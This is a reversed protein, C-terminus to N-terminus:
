VEPLEMPNPQNEPDAMWLKHDNATSIVQVANAYKKWLKRKQPVVGVARTMLLNDCMDAHKVISAIENAAVRALYEEESEKEIVPDHAVGKGPRIYKRRSIADVADAVRDGFQERIEELTVDTDEVVDHLWAVCFIDEDEYGMDWIRHYVRAPHEIYLKNNYLQGRHALGAVQGALLMKDTINLM